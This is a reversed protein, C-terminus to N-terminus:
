HLPGALNSLFFPHYHVGEKVPLAAHVMLKNSVTIDVSLPLLHNGMKM